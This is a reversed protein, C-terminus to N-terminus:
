LDDGPEARSWGLDDADDNGKESQIPERLHIVDVGVGAPHHAQEPVGGSGFDVHRFCVLPKLRKQPDLGRTVDLLDSLRRLDSRRDGPDLRRHLRLPDVLRDACDHARPDRHTTADLDVALWHSGVSRAGMLLDPRGDWFGLDNWGNRGLAPATAMRDGDGPRVSVVETRKTRVDAGNRFAEKRNLLGLPQLDYVRHGNEDWGGLRM